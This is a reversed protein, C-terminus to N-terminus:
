CLVWLMGELKDIETNQCQQIVEINWVCRNTEWARSEMFCHMGRPTLIEYGM